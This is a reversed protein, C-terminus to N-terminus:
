ESRASFISSMSIVKNLSAKVNRVGDQRIPIVTVTVLRAHLVKWARPDPVMAVSWSVNYRNLLTGDNPNRVEVVQPGHNGLTLESSEADRRYADALFQLRDQAAIAATSKSRALAPMGLAVSLLQGIALMGFSMIILAMLTETLGFGRSEAIRLGSRISHLKEENM